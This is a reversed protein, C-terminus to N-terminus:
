ALNLGTGGGGFGGPAPLNGPVSYPAFPAPIGLFPIPAHMTVSCGPCPESGPPIPQFPPSCPTCLVTAGSDPLDITTQEPYTGQGKTPDIESLMHGNGNGNGNGNKEQSMVYLAAAGLGLALILNTNNPM